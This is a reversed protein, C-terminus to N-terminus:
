SSNGEKWFLVWELELWGHMEEVEEEQGEEREGKGCFDCGLVRQRVLARSFRLAAVRHLHM